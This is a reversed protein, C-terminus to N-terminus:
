NSSYLASVLGCGVGSRGQLGCFPFVVRKLSAITRVVSAYMCVYMCVYTYVYMCVYTRVYMCVHMSYMRVYTCVYLVDRVKKKSSGAWNIHATVSSM